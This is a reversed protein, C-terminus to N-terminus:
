SNKISSSPPVALFHFFWPFRKSIDDFLLMMIHYLPQSINISLAIVIDGYKCKVKKTFEDWKFANEYAAFGRFSQTSLLSASSPMKQPAPSHFFSANFLSKSFQIFYCAMLEIIANIYSTRSWSDNQCCIANEMEERANAASSIKENIQNWSSNKWKFRVNWQKQDEYIDHADDLHQLFKGRM